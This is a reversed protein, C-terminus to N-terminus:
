AGVTMGWLLRRVLLSVCRAMVRMYNGGLDMCYDEAGFWCHYWVLLGYSIVNWRGLGMVDMDLRAPVKLMYIVRPPVHCSCLAM